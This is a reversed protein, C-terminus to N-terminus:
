RQGVTQSQFRATRDAIRRPDLLDAAGDLLKCPALLLQHSHEVGDLLAAVQVACCHRRSEGLVVCLERQFADHSLNCAEDRKCRVDGV